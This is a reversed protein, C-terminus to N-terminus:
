EKAFTFTNKGKSKSVYMAEDAKKLLDGSTEGKSPFLAIGISAGIKADGEKLPFPEGLSSLIREAFIQAGKSSSIETLIVAFEDGGMRAVTDSNRCCSNMRAAVSILLEDGAPHGLTDNVHKFGDLDVFLLACQRSYREALVFAQNLRDFFLARNPLGTLKDFHAMSLLQSQYLKRRTIALALYWAGIATILFLGAGMAFLSVMLSKANSSLIQSSIFSVIKWTCANPSIDEANVMLGKIATSDFPSVTEFTYIGDPMRLQGSSSALLQRWIEPSEKVASVQSKNEFMFGWEKESDPHKLWYGDTNLLMMKGHATDGVNQILNLLNSALYNLLVIGRKKGTQDFVPTGFRIMPKYPTEVKGHEVNLDLPSIFIEGAKLNFADLFYYRQQKNQLNKQAVITPAGDNFNVRVVEQGNENLYRIQDYIKKHTSFSLYENNISNLISGTPSSMFNKLDDKEALFMLDSLVSTFHNQIVVRQLEISKKEEARLQIDYNNMQFNYFVAIMGGILAGLFLFLLFFTNLSKKFLQEQDSIIM